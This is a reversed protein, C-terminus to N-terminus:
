RMRVGGKRKLGLGALFLDPVDLRGDSRARFIGVEVLYRVLEHASSVPPRTLSKKDAWEDDWKESLYWEIEKQDWPVESIKSLMRKLGELWPWEDLSGAVHENSVRDLARRLSSPEILRPWRPITPTHKQVEAGSEILRVLPRPIAQGNGDRIHDLLWTFTLGKRKNAGMYNGVIREILPRVDTAQSVRPFFGLKPDFDFKMKVECYERLEDNSNALRRALMSYLDRDSWTLETRNAALKAFDAGGAIAAREYLDTRLFVKGRIRRWRRTHSAWLGVLGRVATLIIKSDGRALTDLEDYAVFIYRDEQQLRKDLRDLALLSSQMTSQFANVVGGIDGGQPYFVAAPADDKIEKGLVRILYALWIELFLEDTPNSSRVFKQLLLHDPFDAGIPYGSLWSTQSGKLPPLRLHPVRAAVDPLLGKEIVTRFLETKGAGRTGVVLVVDPDFARLHEPVPWFTRPLRNLDEGEARGSSGMTSIADLLHRQQDDHAAM